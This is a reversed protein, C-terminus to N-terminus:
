ASGGIRDDAHRHRGDAAGVHVDQAALIRHLGAPDDAVLRDAHDVLEPGGDDAVLGAVAHEDAGDGRAAAAEEALVAVTCLAGAVLVLPLHDAAPPEAVRGIAHLGVVEAHGVSLRVERLDGVVEAVLLAHQEGVDRGGADRGGLSRVHLDALGDGDEGLARDPEARGGARAELAGREDDADVRDLLPQPQRALHPGVLDDVEGLLVRDGGDPPQGAPAADVDRDLSPLCSVNSHHRSAVRGPPM